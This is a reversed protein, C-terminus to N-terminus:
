TELFYSHNLADKASLRKKFSYTVLNSILDRAESPANPLITEWPQPDYHVFHVKKFDPLDDIEDWNDKTPTGLTKFISSLLLLDSYGFNNGLGSDFLPKNEFTFMQAITVGWSWMDLSTGYNTYSLLLEPPRYPGTAVDTILKGQIENGPNKYSWAIGFDILVAKGNESLFMINEPKIDRHLIGKDHIYVLASTIGKIQEKLWNEDKNGRKIISLLDYPLFPLVLVHNEGYRFSGLSEVINEHKLEELLQIEYDPRHPMRNISLTSIKLAVVRDGRTSWISRYIKGTTGESHFSKEKFENM